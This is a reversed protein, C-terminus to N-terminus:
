HGGGSQVKPQRVARFNVAACTQCAPFSFQGNLSRPESKPDVVATLAIQGNGCEPKNSVTVSSKLEKDDLSGAAPPKGKFSVELSRGSQSILLPSNLLSSIDDCALNTPKSGNTEINWTGDVSLPASLHRGSRLVGALALLPLGVLLIYAVVFNRSTRSM